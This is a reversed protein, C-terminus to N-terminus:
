KLKLCETDDMPNPAKTLIKIIEPQIALAKDSLEKVDSSIKAGAKTKLAIYKEIFKNGVCLSDLANLTMISKKSESLSQLDDSLNVGLTDYTTRIAHSQYSAFNLLQDNTKSLQNAEKYAAGFVFKTYYLQNLQAHLSAKRANKLDNEIEQETLKNSNDAQSYAATFGAILILLIKFKNM